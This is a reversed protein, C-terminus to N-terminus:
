PVMLGRGDNTEDQYSCQAPYTSDGSRYSATDAPRREIGLTWPPPDSAPFSDENAQDVRADARARLQDDATMIGKFRPEM